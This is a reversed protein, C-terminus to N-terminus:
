PLDLQSDVDLDIAAAPAAAASNEAILRGPEESGHLRVQRLDGDNKVAADTFFKWGGVCRHGASHGDTQGPSV